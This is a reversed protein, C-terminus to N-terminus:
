AAAVPRNHARALIKGEPSVVVAGVPVEGEAAAKGAEELAARMWEERTTLVALLAGGGLVDGPASRVPADPGGPPGAGVRDPRLLGEGGARGGGGKEAALRVPRHGAEGPDDRDLPGGGRGGGAPEGERPRGHVPPEQVEFAEEEGRRLAFPPVAEGAGDAEDTRPDGGPPAGGGGDPVLVDPPGRRPPREEGGHPLVGRRRGREALGAEPRERGRRGRQRAVGKENRTAEEQM